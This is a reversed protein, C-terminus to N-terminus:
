VPRGQAHGDPSDVLGGNRSSEAAARAISRISVVVALTVSAVLLVAILMGLVLTLTNAARADDGLAGVVTALLAALVPLSLLVAAAIGLVARRRRAIAELPWSRSPALGIRVGLGLGGATILLAGFIRTWDLSSVESIVVLIIGLVVAATSVAGYRRVLWDRL